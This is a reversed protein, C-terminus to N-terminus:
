ILNKKSINYLRTIERERERESEKNMKTTRKLIKIYKVTTGQLYAESDFEIVYILWIQITYPYEM